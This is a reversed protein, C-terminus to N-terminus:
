SFLSWILIGIAFLAVLIALWEKASVGRKSEMFSRKQPTEYARKDSGYSPGAAIEILVVVAVGGLLVWGVSEMGASIFLWAIVTSVLKSIGPGIQNAFFNHLGLMGGFIGLIAYTIHRLQETQARVAAQTAMAASRSPDIPAP